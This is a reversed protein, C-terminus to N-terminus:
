YLIDDSGVKSSSCFSPTPPTQVTTTSADRYEFSIPSGLDSLSLAEAHGRTSDLFNSFDKTLQNTLSETVIGHFKFSYIQGDTVPTYQLCTTFQEYKILYDYTFWKPCISQLQPSRLAIKDSVILLRQFLQHDYRDCRM